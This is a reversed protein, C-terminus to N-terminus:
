ECYKVIKALNHQELMKVLKIPVYGDYEKMLNKILLLVYLPARVIITRRRKKLFGDLVTIKIQREQFLKSILEEKKVKLINELEENRRRLSIIEEEYKRIKELLQKNKEILEKVNKGLTLSIEFKDILYDISNEIEKSLSSKYIIEILKPDGELITRILMNRIANNIKSQVIIYKLKGNSERLNKFFFELIKRDVNDISFTRTIINSNDHSVKEIKEANGEAINKMNKFSYSSFKMIFNFLKGAIEGDIIFKEGLLLPAIQSLEYLIIKFLKAIERRRYVRYAEDTLLITPSNLREAIITSLNGINEKDSITPIYIIKINVNWFVASAIAIGIGIAQTVGTSLKVISTSSLYRSLADVCCGAVIPIM